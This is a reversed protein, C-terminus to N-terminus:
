SAGIARCVATGILADRTVLAALETEGLGETGEPRRPIVVYRLEATSDWVRVEISPDLVLGFEALVARPERVVRSRYALSKYWSPSPGLLSVPYCSCLTCVIVNHVRETNEVARLKVQAWHTMDIGLEDMARNADAFLRARFAPDVWARAVLAPGRARQTSLLFAEVAQDLEAERVIGKAELKAVLAGVRSAMSASEAHGGHDHDHDHDHGSM